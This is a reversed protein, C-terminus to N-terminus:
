CLAGASAIFCESLAVDPSRLWRAMGVMVDSGGEGPLRTWCFWGRRM